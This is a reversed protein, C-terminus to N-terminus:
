VNLIFRVFDPKRLKNLVVETHAGAIDMKVNCYYFIFYIGSIFCSLMKLLFINICFVRRCDDDVQMHLPITRCFLIIISKHKDILASKNQFTM